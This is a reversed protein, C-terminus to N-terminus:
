IRGGEVLERGVVIVEGSETVRRRELYWRVEKEKRKKIKETGGTSHNEVDSYGSDSAEGSEVEEKVYTVSDAGQPAAKRTDPQSQGRSMGGPRHGPPSSPQPSFAASSAPPRAAFKQMLSSPPLPVSLDNGLPSASVRSSPSSHNNTSMQTRPVASSAAIPSIPSSEIPLLGPSFRKGSLSPRSRQSMGAAANRTLSPSSAGYTQESRTPSSSLTAGEEVSANRSHFGLSRKPLLPSALPSSSFPNSGGTGGFADKRLKLLQSLTLDDDDRSFRAALEKLGPSPLPSGDRFAGFGTGMSMFSNRASFESRETIPTLDPERTANGNMGGRFAEPPIFYGGNAAEGGTRANGYFQFEAGYFGSDDAALAEANAAAIMPDDDLASDDLDYDDDLGREDYYPYDNIVSDHYQENGDPNMSSSTSFSQKRFRGDAAAKAAASALADHYVDIGMSQNPVMQGPPFTQQFRDSAQGAASNYNEGQVGGYAYTNDNHMRSGKSNTEVPSDLLAEDFVREGTPAPEEILGDDFYMEDSNHSVHTGARTTTQDKPDLKQHFLEGDRKSKAESDQQEGLAPRHINQAPIPALNHSPLPAMHAGRNTWEHDEQADTNVGPIHEEYQADDMDNYQNDDDDSSPNSVDEAVRSITPRSQQHRSEMQREQTESLNSNFQFSFRSGRAADSGFYSPIELRSRFNQEGSTLIPQPIEESIKAPSSSSGYMAIGEARRAYTAPSQTGLHAPSDLSKQSPSGNRQVPLSPSSPSSLDLQNAMRALFSANELQERQVASENNEDTSVDEFMEVFVPLHEKEPSPDNALINTKINIEKSASAAQEAHRDSGMDVEAQVIGLGQVDNSSFNRRPRPANFDHVGKGRIRPDYNAPLSLAPVAFSNEKGLSDDARIDLGHTTRRRILLNVPHLLNKAKSLKSNSSYFVQPSRSPASSTASTIMPSSTSRPFTAFKPSQAQAKQQVPNPKITVEELESEESPHATTNLSSLSDASQTPLATGVTESISSLEKTNGLSITHEKMATTDGTDYEGEIPRTFPKDTGNRALIDGREKAPGDEM